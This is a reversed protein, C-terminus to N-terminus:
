TRNPPGPSCATCMYVLNHWAHRDTGARIDSLGTRTYTLNDRRTHTQTVVRASKRAPPFAGPGWGVWSSGRGEPPAWCLGLLLPTRIQNPLEIESPALCFTSALFPWAPGTQAIAMAASSSFKVLMLSGKPGAEGDEKGSKIEM